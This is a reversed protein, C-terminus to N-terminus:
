PSEQKQPKLIKKRNDEIEDIIKTIKRIDENYLNNHFIM